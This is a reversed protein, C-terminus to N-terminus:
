IGSTSLTSTSSTEAGGDGSNGEKEKEEEKAEAEEGIEVSSSALANRSEAEEQDEEDSVESDIHPIISEIEDIPSTQISSDRRDILRKSMCMQCVKKVEAEECNKECSSVPFKRLEAGHEMSLLLTDLMSTLCEEDDSDEEEEHLDRTDMNFNMFLRSLQKERVPRQRIIGRLKYTLICDVGADHLSPQLCLYGHGDELFPEHDVRGLNLLVGSGHSM